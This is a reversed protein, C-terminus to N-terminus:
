CELTIVALLNRFYPTSSYPFSASANLARPYSKAYKKTSAIFLAPSAFGSFIFSAKAVVISKLPTVPVKDISSYWLGIFATVISSSTSPSGFNKFFNSGYFM